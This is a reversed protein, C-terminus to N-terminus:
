EYQAGECIVVTKETITIKIHRNPVSEVRVYGFEELSDLMAELISPSLNLRSCVHYPNTIFDGGSSRYRSYGENEILYSLLIKEETNLDNRYLIQEYLTVWKSGRLSARADGDQILFKNETM